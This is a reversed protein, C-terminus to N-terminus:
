AGRRQGGFMSLTADSPIRKSANVPQRTTAAPYRFPPVHSRKPDSKDGGAHRHRRWCARVAAAQVCMAAVMISARAPIVTVFARKRSLGEDRFVYHQLRLRLPLGFRSPSRLFHQQLPSSRYKAAKGPESTRKRVSLRVRWRHRDRLASELEAVRHTRESGAGCSLQGIASCSECLLPWQNSGLVVWWRFRSCSRKVIRM